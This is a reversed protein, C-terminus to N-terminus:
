QLPGNEDNSAQPSMSLLKILTDCRTVLDPAELLAQKEIPRFPCGTALAHILTEIPADEVASWDADLGNKDTYIQLATELKLRPPLNRLDPEKLDQAYPQYNARVRRYPTDVSLEEAIGYRIVGSLTLMYRGDNTESYSTIRGVCGVNSLDPHLRQASIPQIMGIPRKSAMADDVMNLYRPEFINLPLQWGPFLIAGSLPFVPITEPLDSISHYPKPM